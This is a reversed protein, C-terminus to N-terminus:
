KPLLGLVQLLGGLFLFKFIWIFIWILWSSVIVGIQIVIFAAPWTAIMGVIRGSDTTSSCYNEFSGYKGELVPNIKPTSSDFPSNGDVIPAVPLLIKAATSTQYYTACNMWHVYCIGINVYLFAFVLVIAVKKFFSLGKFWNWM